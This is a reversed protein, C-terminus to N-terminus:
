LGDFSLPHVPQKRTIKQVQKSLERGASCAGDHDYRFFDFSYWDPYWDGM